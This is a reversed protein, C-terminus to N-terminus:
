TEWVLKFSQNLLRYILFLWFFPGPPEGARGDARRFFNEAISVEHMPTRHSCSIGTSMTPMWDAGMNWSSESIPHLFHLFLM